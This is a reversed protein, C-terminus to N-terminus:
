LRGYEDVTGSTYPRLYQVETGTTFSQEFIITQKRIRPRVIEKTGCFLNVPCPLGTIETGLVYWITAGRAFALYKM